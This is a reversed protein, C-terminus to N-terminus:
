RDAGQQRSDAGGAGPFTADREDLPGFLEHDELVSMNRLRTLESKLERNRRNLTRIESRLGLSAFFSVVGWIAIGTAISGLVLVAVPMTHYQGSWPNNLGVPDLNATAFWVCFLLVLFTVFWRLFWM